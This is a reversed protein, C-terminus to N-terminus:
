FVFEFETNPARPCCKFEAANAHHPKSKPVDPKNVTDDPNDDPNNDAKGIKPTKSFNQHDATVDKCSKQPNKFAQFFFM